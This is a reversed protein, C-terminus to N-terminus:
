CGSLFYAHIVLAVQCGLAIVVVCTRLLEAKSRALRLGEKDEAM